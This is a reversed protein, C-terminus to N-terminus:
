VIGLRRSSIFTVPTSYNPVESCLAWPSTGGSTASSTKFFSCFSSGLFGTPFHLSGWHLLLDFIAAVVALELDLSALFIVASVVLTSGFLRQGEFVTRLLYKKSASELTLRKLWLTRQMHVLLLCTCSILCPLM